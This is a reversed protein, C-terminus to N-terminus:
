SSARGRREGGSPPRPDFDSVKALDEFLRREEPDLKRPVVIAVEAYFDGAEGRPDPLGRHRLRLRRGSSTGAPVKVRAAGGPTTVEVTSGLAGEWPALPLRAVINRGEVRYRKHPAIRVVLFLDGAPAGESGPGGQGSLRIRQGDTVGSPITVEVRREGASGGKGSLALSRRTGHFAEEVTVEVEVEQDAGPVRGWGRRAGGGWRAGGRGAEGSGRGSPGGFMADLLDDIDVDDGGMTTWESSGGPGGASRGRGGPARGGARARAWTEPDVDPPVQRFDAGFADHRARTEPDSLVDYAESVDKFRSDAEPDKNVDPHYTRALRRYARQIDDPTADRGVGLVAYFDRPETRPAM